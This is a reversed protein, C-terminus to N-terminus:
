GRVGFRWHSELVEMVSGWSRLWANWVMWFVWSVAVTSMQGGALTGARM